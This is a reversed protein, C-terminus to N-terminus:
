CAYILIFLLLFSLSLMSHAVGNMAPEMFTFFLHCNESSVMAFTEPNSVNKQILRKLLLSCCLLTFYLFLFIASYLCNEFVVNIMRNFHLIEVTLCVDFGM